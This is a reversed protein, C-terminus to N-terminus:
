FMIRQGTVLSLAAATLVVIVGASLVWRLWIYGPPLLGRRNAQAEIIVTAIFGAILVALAVSPLGLFAVLLAAWGILSPVVGLVLRAQLISAAQPAGPAAAYGFEAFGLGWHVAGLFSLICAGYGLLGLLARAAWDQQMTTAGIGLAVFPILGGLGLVWALLPLRHTM